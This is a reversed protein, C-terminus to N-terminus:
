ISTFLLPASTIPAVAIRSLLYNLPILLSNWIMLGIIVSVIFLLLVSM